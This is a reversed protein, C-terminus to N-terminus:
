RGDQPVRAADLYTLTSVIKGTEDVIEIVSHWDLRDGTLLKESIMECASRRAEAIAEALSIFSAGEEDSAYGDSDRHNFFYHQALETEAKESPHDQAPKAM